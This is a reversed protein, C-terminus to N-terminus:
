SRNPSWCAWIIVMIWYKVTDTFIIYYSHVIPKVVSYYITVKLFFFLKINHM